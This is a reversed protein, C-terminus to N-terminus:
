TQYQFSTAEGRKPDEVIRRRGQKREPPFFLTASANARWRLRCLPGQREFVMKAAVMIVRPSGSQGAVYGFTSSTQDIDPNAANMHNFANQAEARLQLYRSESRLNSKKM